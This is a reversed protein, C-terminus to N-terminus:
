KSQLGGSVGSLINVYWDAPSKKLAGTVCTMRHQQMYMFIGKDCTPCYVGNPSGTVCQFVVILLLNKEQCLYPEACM